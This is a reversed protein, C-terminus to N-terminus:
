LKVGGLDFGETPKGADIAAHKAARSEAEKAAAKADREARFHKFGEESNITVRHAQYQPLNRDVLQGAFTEDIAASNDILFQKVVARHIASKEYLLDGNEDKKMMLNRHHERAIEQAELKKLSPIDAMAESLERGSVVGQVPQNRDTGFPKNAMFQVIETYEQDRGYKPDSMADTMDKRSEFACMDLTWDKPIYKNKPSIAM